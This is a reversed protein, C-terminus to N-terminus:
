YKECNKQKNTQKKNKQLHIRSFSTNEAQNYKPPNRLWKRSLM